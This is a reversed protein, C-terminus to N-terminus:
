VNYRPDKIIQVPLKLIKERQNAVQGTIGPMFDDNTQQNTMKCIDTSISRHM